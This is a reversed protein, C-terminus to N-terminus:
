DPQCEVKAVGPTADGPLSELCRFISPRSTGVIASFEVYESSTVIQFTQLGEAPVKVSTMRGRVTRPIDVILETTSNVKVTINCDFTLRLSHSGCKMRLEGSFPLKSGKLSGTDQVVRGMISVVNEDITKVTVRKEVRFRNIGQPCAGGRDGVTISIQTLQQDQTSPNLLTAQVRHYGPSEAIVVGSMSLREFGAVNYLYDRSTPISMAILLVLVIASSGAVVAWRQWGYKPSGDPLKTRWLHALLLGIAIVAMALIAITSIPRGQQVAVALAVIGSVIAIVQAIRENTGTTVKGGLRLAGFWVPQATAYRLETTGSVTSEVSSSRGLWPIRATACRPLGLVVALAHDIHCTLQTYKCRRARRSAERRGQRFGLPAAAGNPLHPVEPPARSCSSGLVSSWSSPL